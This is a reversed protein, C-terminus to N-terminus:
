LPKDEKKNLKRLAVPDSWCSRPTFEDRPPAPSAFGDLPFCGITSTHVYTRIKKVPVYLNDPPSNTLPSFTAKHYLYMCQKIFFFQM